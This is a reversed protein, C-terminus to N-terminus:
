EKWLEVITYVEVVAFNSEVGYGYTAATIQCYHQIEFTKTGAITFVGKVFSPESTAITNNCFNSSGIIVDSADTINYLKAKHRGVQHAPVVASIKYTGAALTFQNSSISVIGSTDTVETNIDRTRWAGLTFTGGSTNATKQDQFLAYASYMGFGSSSGSSQLAQLTGDADAWLTINGASPTGPTTGTKITIEGGM